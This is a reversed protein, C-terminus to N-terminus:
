TSLQLGTSCAAEADAKRSKGQDYSCNRGRDGGRGQPDILCANRIHLKSTRKETAHMKSTIKLNKVSFNVNFVCEVPFRVDFSCMWFALTISGKADARKRTQLLIIM